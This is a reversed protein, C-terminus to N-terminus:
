PSDEEAAMAAAEMVEVLAVRTAEGVEMGVEAAQATAETMAEM